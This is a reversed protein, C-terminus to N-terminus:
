CPCCPRFALTAAGVPTAIAAALNAVGIARPAIPRAPPAAPPGAVPVGPHSEATGHHPAGSSPRPRSSRSRSRCCFTSARSSSSIRRRSRSSSSVRDIAVDILQLPELREDGFPELAEFVPKAALNSVLRIAGEDRAGVFHRLLEALQDLFVVARQGLGLLLPLLSATQGPSSRRPPEPPSSQTRAPDRTERNRRARRLRRCERWRKSM